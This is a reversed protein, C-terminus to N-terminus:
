SQRKKGQWAPKRRERMERQIFERLKNQIELWTFGQSETIIEIRNSMIHVKQITVFSLLLAWWGPEYTAAEEELSHWDIERSDPDVFLLTMKDVAQTLAM